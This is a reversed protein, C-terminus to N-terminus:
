ARAPEPIAGLQQLLGFTDWNTRAEVIKGGAIRNITIGTVTSQRGTPPIGFLEGEHTGRATWRLVVTDGEAISEEITMELNPFAAKYASASQKFAETGVMPDPMAVDYGVYGASVLEDITDLRGDNFVETLVRRALDKNAQM